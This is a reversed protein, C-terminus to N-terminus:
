DDDLPTGPVGHQSCGAHTGVDGVDYTGTGPCIPIEGGRLFTQIEEPPATVGDSLGAEISYQDKADEIMRLNNWCSNQQTAQRARPFGPLAIAALLGIIMVVIMIEVLTFGQKRNKM